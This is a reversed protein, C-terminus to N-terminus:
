DPQNGAVVSVDTGTAKQIAADIKTSLGTIDDPTEFYYDGKDDYNVLGATFACKGGALASMSKKLANTPARGIVLPSMKKGECFLFYTNKGEKSKLKDLMAKLKDNHTKETLEYAGKKTPEPPGGDANIQAAAPVAFLCLSLAIIKTM